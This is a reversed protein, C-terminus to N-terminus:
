FNGWFHNANQSAVGGIELGANVYTAITFFSMPMLSLLLSHCQCLLCYYLIVNVYTVITFFSMSMRSLLLSHCQCLHCYYLIVNVYTVITFFLMSMRSLLLSHCQCVHCYYLIVNAYMVITFFSMSMLMTGCNIKNYQISHFINNLMSSLFYISNYPLSGM